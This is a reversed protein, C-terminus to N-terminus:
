MQLFSLILLIIALKQYPRPKKMSHSSSKDANSSMIQRQSSLSTYGQRSIVLRERNPNALHANISDMGGKTVEEYKQEAKRGEEKADRARVLEDEERQRARAFQLIEETQPDDKQRSILGVRDRKPNALHARISDVGGETVDGYVNEAERREKKADRARARRTREDALESNIEDIHKETTNYDYDNLNKIKELNAPYRIGEDSDVVKGLIHIRAITAFYAGTCLM